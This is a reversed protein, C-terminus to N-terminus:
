LGLKMRVFNGLTISGNIDTGPVGSEVASPGGLITGVVRGSGPNDPSVLGGATSYANAGPTWSGSPAPDFQDTLFEGGSIYVTMKGSGLTENFMDSVRNSTSRSAGTSNIVIDAAFPTHGSDSALTDGAIGVALTTVNAETVYGNADLAVFQGEIIPNNVADHDPNVDFSTPILHQVEILAM